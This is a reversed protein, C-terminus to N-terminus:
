GPVEGIADVALRLEHETPKTLRFRVLEARLKALAHDASGASVQIGGGINAFIEWVTEPAKETEGHLVYRWVRPSICVSHGPVLECVAALLEKVNM